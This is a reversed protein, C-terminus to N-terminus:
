LLVPLNPLNTIVIKWVLVETHREFVEPVDEEKATISIPIVMPEVFLNTSIDRAGGAYTLVKTKKAQPALVIGM